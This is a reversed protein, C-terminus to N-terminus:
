AGAGGRTLTLVVDGDLGVDIDTGGIIANVFTAAARLHVRQDGEAAVQFPVALLGVNLILQGLATVTFTGVLVDDPRETHDTYDVLLTFTNDSRFTVRLDDVVLALDATRDRQGDQDRISELEWNGVFFSADLQGEVSSDCGITFSLVTLVVITALSARGFSSINM